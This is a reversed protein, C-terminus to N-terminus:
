KVQPRSAKTRKKSGPQSNRAPTKKVWKYVGDVLKLEQDNDDQVESARLPGNAIVRSLIVPYYVYFTGGIAKESKYLLVDEVGDGNFDGFAKIELEIRAADPEEVSIWNAGKNLLKLEPKFKKWSQGKREAEDAREELEGVPAFSLSPPLLDLAAENLKFNKIYSVRSPKAALILLTADCQDKFYSETAREYGNADNRWGNKKARAYDACTRIERERGTHEYIKQTAPRNM